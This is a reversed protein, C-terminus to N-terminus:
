KWQVWQDVTGFRNLRPSDQPRNRLFENLVESLEPRDTIGMMVSAPYNAWGQYNLDVRDLLAVIDEPEIWGIYDAM